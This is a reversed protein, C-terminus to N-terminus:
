YDKRHNNENFNKQHDLWKDNSVRNWLSIVLSDLDPYTRGEWVYDGKTKKPELNQGAAWKKIEPWSFGMM